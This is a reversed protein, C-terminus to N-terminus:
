STLDAPHQCTVPVKDMLIVLTTRMLCQSTKMVPEKFFFFFFQGWHEIKWVWWTIEPVCMGAMIGAVEKHYLEPGCLFQGMTFPM